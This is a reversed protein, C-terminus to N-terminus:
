TFIACRTCSRFGSAGGGFGHATDGVVLSSFVFVFCAIGCPASRSRFPVRVVCFGSLPYFM